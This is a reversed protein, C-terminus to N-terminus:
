IHILSLYRAQPVAICDYSYISETQKSANDRESRCTIALLQKAAIHPSVASHHASNATSCYWTCPLHEVVAHEYMYSFPGCLRFFHLVSPGEESFSPFSLPFLEGALLPLFENNLHSRQCALSNGFHLGSRYTSSEQTHTNNFKERVESFARSLTLWEAFISPFGRAHHAIYSARWSWCTSNVVYEVGHNVGHNFRVINSVFFCVSVM